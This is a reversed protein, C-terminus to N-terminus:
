AVSEIHWFKADIGLEFIASVICCLNHCLVKCLVENVQATPTKARVRSGFKAKIMHFTTEINSRQHYHKLFEERNYTFFNFMRKWLARSDASYRGKRDKTQYAGNPTSSSKFPILPFAGAADIADLNDHSIYARDAALTKVAFRKGTAKLLAPLQPCDAGRQDTVEVGTVVNTTTGIM